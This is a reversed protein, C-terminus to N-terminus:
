PQYYLKFGNAQPIISLEEWGVFSVSGDSLAAGLGDPPPQLTVGSPYQVFRSGVHPCVSPSPAGASDWCLCTWLTQSGPTNRQALRRLSRYKLSGGVSLDDRGGWYIWGLMVDHPSGYGPQVIGFDTAEDYGERVSLCSNNQQLAPVLQVLLRWCNPYNIWTYDDANAPAGAARGIPLAGDNDAAYLICAQALQRLNSLDQTRRASERVRGLSPLLMAMLLSLIGIVVLVELLTFGPRAPRVPLGHPSPFAIASCMSARSGGRKRLRKLRLRDINESRQRM